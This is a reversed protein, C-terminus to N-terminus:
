KILYPEIAKKWIAYGKANMHLQDALFIDSMISGDANLMKHYVDVFTAHSNVSLYTQILLNAKEM